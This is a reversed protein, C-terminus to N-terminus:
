SEEETILEALYLQDDVQGTITIMANTALERENGPFLPIGTNDEGLWVVGRNSPAAKLLLRQRLPNGAIVVAHRESEPLRPPKPRRPPHIHPPKPRYKRHSKHKGTM